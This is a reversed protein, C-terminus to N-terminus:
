REYHVLLVRSRTKRMLTKEYRSAEYRLSSNLNILIVLDILLHPCNESINVMGLQQQQQKKSLVPLMTWPPPLYVIVKGM